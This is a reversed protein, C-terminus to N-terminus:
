DALLFDHDLGEATSEPVHRCDRAAGDQPVAPDTENDVHIGQPVGVSVRWRNGYVAEGKSRAPNRPQERDRLIRRRFGDADPCPLAPKRGARAGPELAHIENM